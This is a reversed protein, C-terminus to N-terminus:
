SEDDKKTGGFITQLKQMATLRDTNASLGNESYDQSTALLELRCGVNQYIEELLSEAGEGLLERLEDAVIKVDFSDPTFSAGKTGIQWVLARMTEEGLGEFVEMTAEYLLQNFTLNKPDTLAM